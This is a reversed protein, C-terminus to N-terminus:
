SQILLAMDPVRYWRRQWSSPILLETDTFRYWYIRMLKRRDADWCKSFWGLMIAIWSFFLAVSAGSQELKWCMLWACTSLASNSTFTRLDHPWSISDGLSTFSDADTMALGIVLIKFVEMSSGWHLTICNRKWKTPVESKWHTPLKGPKKFVSCNFKNTYSFATDLFHDPNEEVTTEDLPVETFLSSVDYSVLVEDDDVTRNSLREAFDTTTKISYENETLPLLYSALFKATEYYFTGCTGVM